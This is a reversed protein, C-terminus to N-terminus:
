GTVSTLICLKTSSHVKGVLVGSKCSQVWALPCLWVEEEEVWKL